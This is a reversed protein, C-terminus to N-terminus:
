PTLVLLRRDTEAMGKAADTGMLIEGNPLASGNKVRRGNQMVIGDPFIERIGLKEGSAIDTPKGDAAKSLGIRTDAELKLAPAPDAVKAQALKAPAAAHAGGPAPSGARKHAAAPPPLAAALQPKAAAPIEAPAPTSPTSRSQVAKAPAASALRRGDSKNPVAPTQDSTKVTTPAPMSAIAPSAIEIEYGSIAVRPTRDVLRYAAAGLLASTTLMCAVGGLIMGVRRTSTMWSYDQPLYPEGFADEAWYRNLEGM